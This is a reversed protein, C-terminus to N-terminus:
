LLSAGFRAELAQIHFLRAMVVDWWSGKVELGLCHHQRPRCKLRNHENLLPADASGKPADTAGRFAPAPLCQVEGAKKKFPRMAQMTQTTQCLKDGAGCACASTSMTFCPRTSSFWFTFVMVASVTDASASAAEGYPMSDKSSTRSGSQFPMRRSRPLTPTEQRQKAM